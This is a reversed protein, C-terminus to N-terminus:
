LRCTLIVEPKGLMPKDKKKAGSQKKESPPLSREQQIEETIFNGPVQKQIESKLYSGMVEPDHQRLCRVQIILQNQM